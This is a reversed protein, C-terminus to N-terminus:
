EGSYQAGQLYGSYRAHFAEGAFFVRGVPKLVEDFGDPLAGTPLFSYAGCFFPDSSWRCIHMQKLPPVKLDYMGSLSDLIQSKLEDEPLLELQRGEDGTVTVVIISSNRLPQWVVFRGRPEGGRLIYQEDTWFPNDFELFIKTYNCMKIGM